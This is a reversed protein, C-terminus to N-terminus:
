NSRLQIRDAALQSAPSQLEGFMASLVGFLSGNNTDGALQSDQKMM